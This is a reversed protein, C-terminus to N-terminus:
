SGLTIRAAAGAFWIQEGDLLKIALSEDSGIRHGQEPKFSPPTASNTRLWRVENPSVNTVIIDKDGSAVFRATTTWDAECVYAQDLDAM